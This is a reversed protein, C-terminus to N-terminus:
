TWFQLASLTKFIVKLFRWKEFTSKKARELATTKWGIQGMNKSTNALMGIFMTDRFQGGLKLVKATLFDRIVFLRRKLKRLEKEPANKV